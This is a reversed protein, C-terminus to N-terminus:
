GEGCHPCESEWHEESGCQPCYRPEPKGEVGFPLGTDGDIIGGEIAAETETFIFEEVSDEEGKRRRYIAITDGPYILVPRVAIECGENTDEAVLEWKDLVKLVDERYLLRPQTHASAVLPASRVGKLAEIEERIGM